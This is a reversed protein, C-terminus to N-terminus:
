RRSAARAPARHTPIAEGLRGDRMQLSATAWRTACPDRTVMLVATRVSGPLEALIRYVEAGSAGDLDGAPEDALLLAPETVLARAIAVRQQEAGSMERPRDDARGLLGLPELRARAIARAEDPPRGDLLLPLAVNEAASLNPLLHFFRFLFGLRRRRYTTLDDDSMESVRRGELLVEGDTPRVLGAMVHLLTSKGSGPPGTVVVFDGTHITLSVGHLARVVEGGRAYSRHVDRLEVLPKADQGDGRTTPPMAVERDDDSPGTLL